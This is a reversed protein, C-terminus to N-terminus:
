HYYSSIPYTTIFGVVIRDRHGRLLKKLFYELDFLVIVCEMGLRDSVVAIVIHWDECLFFGFM